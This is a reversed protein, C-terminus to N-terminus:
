AFKARVYYNEALYNGIVGLKEEGNNENYIVEKNQM